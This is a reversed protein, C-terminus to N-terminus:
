HHDEFVPFNIAMFRFVLVGVTVIMFTIGIEYISPFYTVGSSATISTISVNMRNLMFGLVVSLSALYLKFRDMRWKEQMLLLMPIVSFLIIEAWFLYTESAPQFMLGAKGDILLDVFRWMTYIGLFAMATKSADALLPVNLSHNFARASTYSEFIVMAFGVVIASIFFFVPLFSSYWLGHMKGPMILYVSGLSSQHLTSLIVGLIFVPVVIKKMIRAIKELKFREIAFSSFEIFLVTLYLMVCWAVEFMVSHPNWMVLPHWINWPKGIDFMLALAVFAYGLFATLIAPRSLPKFKDIHFIHVVASITFGGAALGVGCLIDFGIWLGWPFQDSLNTVAGLGETFRVYLSYAGFLIFVTALLGWFSFIGKGLKM